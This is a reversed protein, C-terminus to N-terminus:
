SLPHFGTPQYARGNPALIVADRLGRGLMELGKEVALKASPKTVAIAGMSNNATVLYDM